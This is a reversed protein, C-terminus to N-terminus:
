GRKGDDASGLPYPGGLGWLVGLLFFLMYCLPHIFRTFAVCHLAYVKSSGTLWFALGGFRSSMRYIIGFRSSLTGALGGMFSMCFSLLVMAYFPHICRLAICAGAPERNVLQGGASAVRCAIFDASGVTYPRGLGGGRFSTFCIAFCNFLTQLRLAISHVSM